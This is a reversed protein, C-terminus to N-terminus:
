GHRVDAEVEGRTRLAESIEEVRRHKGCTFGHYGDCECASRRAAALDERLRATSRRLFRPDAWSAGPRRRASAGSPTEPIM